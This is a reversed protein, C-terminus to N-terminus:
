QKKSLILRRHPLTKLVKCLVPPTILNLWLSIRGTLATNVGCDRRFRLQWDVLVPKFFFTVSEDYDGNIRIVEAGLAQM